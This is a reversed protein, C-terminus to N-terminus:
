MVIINRQISKRDSSIKLIYIGKELGKLEIYNTKLGKKYRVLEGLVSYMKVDSFSADSVIQISNSTTPNPFVKLSKFYVENLNTTDIQLTTITETNSNGSVNGAADKAVVYYTYTTNHTLANDTYNTNSVNTILAGDRFVDYSSVAINDTSANWNLDTSNTTTNSAILNTPITPNTNDVSTLTTIMESNSNGSINGAADKAVVYYTYSTSATLSNDTYNTSVVSTIMSGDRYVDYATVGVNDTSSSWNLDVSNSTINSAALNTPTSPNTIDPTIVVINGSRGNRLSAGLKNPTFGLENVVAMVKERTKPSVIEPNRLTRSVTAQSVGIRQAIDKIRLNSM